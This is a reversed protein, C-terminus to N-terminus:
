VCVAYVYAAQWDTPIGEDVQGSSNPLVMTVM